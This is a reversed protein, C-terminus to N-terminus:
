GLLSGNEAHVPQEFCSSGAKVQVGVPLGRDFGRDDRAQVFLDTGLDHQVNLAVPGWGIRQLAATV